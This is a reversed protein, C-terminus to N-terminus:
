LMMTILAGSGAAVLWAPVATADADDSTLSWPRWVKKKEDWFAAPKALYLASYVAGGTFLGRLVPTKLGLASNVSEIPALIANDIASM